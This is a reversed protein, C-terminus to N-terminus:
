ECCHAATCTETGNGCSPSGAKALMPQSEAACDFATNSGDAGTNACTKMLKCCHAATCTETGDGCKPNGAKVLMPQAENACDFTNETGDGDTDACMKPKCCTAADCVAM